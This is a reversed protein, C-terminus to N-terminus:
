ALVVEPRLVDGEVRYVALMIGQRNMIRVATSEAWSSTNPIAQGYGVLTSTESDVEVIPLSGLAYGPDVLSEPSVDGVFVANAVKLHGIRTRRLVTLHGRGGLAIAIDDGLTRIYTGKSCVVRLHMLPREGPDFGTLTLESIIVSRSKREVEIGKRALEHLRRGGVKLASVMPPVQEIEGRFRALQAVVDARTVGSMDVQETTEGEADLTSTGIGLLVTTEYEKEADQIWRILRTVPGVAVVLLGTAMPDLTGAHGVKKIGLAKRVKDVVGHSTIGAAKDVLLFGRM